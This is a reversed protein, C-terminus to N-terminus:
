NMCTLGRELVFMCLRCMLKTAWVAPALIETEYCLVVLFMAVRGPHSALGDCTVRGGGGGVCKTLNGQCNAPVWKCM